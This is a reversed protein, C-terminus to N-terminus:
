PQENLLKTRIEDSQNSISEAEYQNGNRRLQDALRTLIQATRADSDGYTKKALDASQRMLTTTRESDTRPM